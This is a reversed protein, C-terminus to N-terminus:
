KYKQRTAADWLLGRVRDYTLHYNPIGRQDLLHKEALAEITMMEFDGKFGWIRARSAHVELMKPYRRMLTNLCQFAENFRHCDIFYESDVYLRRLEDVESNESLVDDNIFAAIDSDLRVDKRRARTKDRSAAGREVGVSSGFPSDVADVNTLFTATCEALAENVGAGCYLTPLGCRRALRAGAVLMQNKDPSFPKDAWLKRLKSIRPLVLRLWEDRTSMICATDALHVLEHIFIALLADDPLEMVAEGVVMTELGTAVAVPQDGKINEERGYGPSGSCLLLGASRVAFARHWLRPYRQRILNMIRGVRQQNKLSWELPARATGECEQSFERWHYDTACVFYYSGSPRALENDSHVQAASAASTLCLLWAVVAAICRNKIM